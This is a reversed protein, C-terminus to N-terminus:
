DVAGLCGRGDRGSQLGARLFSPLGPRHDGAHAQELPPDPRGRLPRRRSAQALYLPIDVNGPCNARCGPTRVRAAGFISHFSNEGAIANCKGGGKRLCRFRDDPNRYYWCRPEQCLNGGITGRNRIQPSAVVRAAEAILPYRERLIPSKAIEALTTLAGIRVGSGEERIYALDPIGKLDIFLKPYRAHVRDKLLGLIDTGGAVLVAGSGQADALAAADSLSAARVHEFNEM